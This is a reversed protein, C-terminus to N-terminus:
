GDTGRLDLEFSKLLLAVGAAVLGAPDGFEQWIGVVVLVAGVFEILWVSRLVRVISLLANVM